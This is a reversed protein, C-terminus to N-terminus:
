CETRAWNLVLCQQKACVAGSAGVTCLNTLKGDVLDIVVYATLMGDEGLTLCAAKSM